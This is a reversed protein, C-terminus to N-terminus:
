SNQEAVTADPAAAPVPTTAALDHCADIIQHAPAVDESPTDAGIDGLMTWALSEIRTIAVCRMVANSEAWTEEDMGYDISLADIGPIRGLRTMARVVDAPTTMITARSASHIYEIVRSTCHEVRDRCDLDSSGMLGHTAIIGGVRWAWEAIEPKLVDNM